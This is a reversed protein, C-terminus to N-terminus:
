EARLAASPDIRLARHAPVLVAAFSSVILIVAVGAFTAPDHPRVGFLLSELWRVAWWAGLLGAALGGFVRLMTQRLLLWVIQLPSAGLTLRIGLEPLRQAVTYALLGYVGVVAIAFAFASLVSVVATTFRPMATRSRWIEDLTEIEALPQNKDVGRVANRVARVSDLPEGATRVLLTTWALWDQTKQAFPVYVVAGEDTGQGLHKVDPIVGAVEMWRRDEKFRVRRGVPDLGRWYRRAMTENVIAVPTAGERDGAAFNRGNLVPIGALSLYGTSIARLGAQVPPDSPAPTIGEVVFEFTPNNGKLPTESIEGAAVIGPLNQVREAIQEFFANQAANSPYRSHSLTLRVSLVHNTRLGPEISLLRALSGGLLGAGVLLVCALGIEIAVLLGRKLEMGRQTGRAGSGISTRLDVSSSHLAPALGFILVTVLTVGVAFLADPRSLQIEAARPILGDGFTRVLVVGQRALALGLAGGLAALVTSEVMLQRVIRVRGAGMASRVGIERTRSTGEALLLNALNVCAILLLLGTGAQLTLLVPRTSAMLQEQLPVLSVSWGANTAPYSAALRRSVVDMETAADLRGANMKLRAIVALWRGDRSARNAANLSLPIWADTAPSPFAFAAPMVGVVTAQSGNLTIQRGAIGSEGDL